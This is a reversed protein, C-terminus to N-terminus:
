RARPQEKELAKIYAEDRKASAVFLGAICFGVSVSLPIILLLWLPNM